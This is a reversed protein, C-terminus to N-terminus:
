AGDAVDSQRASDLRQAAVVVPPLQDGGRTGDPPKKWVNQRLASRRGGDGRLVVSATTHGKTLRGVRELVEAVEAVLPRLDDVVEVGVVGVRLLLDRLQQRRFAERRERGVGQGLGAVAPVAGLVDARASAPQRPAAGKM